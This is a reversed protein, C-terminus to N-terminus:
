VSFNFLHLFCIAQFVRRCMVVYSSVHRCVVVCVVVVAVHASKTRNV